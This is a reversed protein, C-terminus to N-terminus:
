NPAVVQQKWNQEPDLLPMIGGLRAPKLGSDERMSRKKLGKPQLLPKSSQGRLKSQRSAKGHVQALSM